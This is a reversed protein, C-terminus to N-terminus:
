QRKLYVAWDTGGPTEIRRAGGGKLGPPPTESGDRPNYLTASYNGEGLKLGFAGGAAAYVIYQRGPQALVYVREESSVLEPAPSMKWYELGRGTFLKVLAAIDGYEARDHWRTSVYPRGDAYTNKDGSSAYGGAMYIAWMSQRHKEPAYHNTDPGRDGRADRWLSDGMYGFEDNVVPMGFKRNEIHAAYLSVDGPTARGTQLIVHVPWRQDGFHFLDGNGKGGLPHISLARLRGNWEIWPDGARLREGLTNLYEKTRGTRQYENTLCWIVNPYAAYRAIAYRLLRADQEPTGFAADKSNFPMLDAIVGARALYEVVEDTTRWHALDLTDRDEGVWPQACPAPNISLGCNKIYLRFRVKNIGYKPLNDIAEKWYAGARAASILEYYTTGFMFHRTEDDHVWHLPYATDRRVFGHAGRAPAALITGCWGHLSPDPSRTEFTWRGEETPTFRIKFVGGGDWFGPVRMVAGQPSRFEADLSSEVYPNAYTRESRLVVEHVAWRPTEAEPLARSAAAGGYWAWRKKWDALFAARWKSVSEQAEAKSDLDVYYNRYKTRRFRGGWNERTPDDVRGVGALGASILYLMSPSDGEKLGARQPGALPFLEGPKGYPRINRKVFEIWNWEGSQDGGSYVGRFTDRSGNPMDGNEIWFLDPWKRELGDLIHQRAAPDSRTNNAGITYLRIRSAISPDDDLAQAIDTAAGWVLVYLPRADPANARKLIWESGQTRRGAAPAGAAVAGQKVLDLLESERMLENHGNARMREVDINRIWERILGASNKAGPGLTSVIGEVRLVDSYHVLRYLSQIDDPDGGLDTSVLVRYPQAFAAALTMGAAAAINLLRSAAM